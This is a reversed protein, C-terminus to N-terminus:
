DTPPTPRVGKARGCPERQCCGSGSYISKKRQENGDGSVSNREKRTKVALPDPGPPVTAIQGTISHRQGQRLYVSRDGQNKGSAGRRRAPVISLLGSAVCFVLRM